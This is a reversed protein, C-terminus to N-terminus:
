SPDNCCRCPHEPSPGGCSARGSRTWLVLNRWFSKMRNRIYILLHLPRFKMGSRQVSTFTSKWPNSLGKLCFRSVSSCIINLHFKLSVKVNRAIRIKNLPRRTEKWTSRAIQGNPLWLRAWCVVSLDGKMPGNQSVLFSRIRRAADGDLWHRYEDRAHLLTYGHGLDILCRVTKAEELDLDLIM